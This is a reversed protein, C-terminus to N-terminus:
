NDADVREKTTHWILATALLGGALTALLDAPDFVGRSWYPGVLQLSSDPLLDALGTLMLASLNSHQSIELLMCLGTWALCHFSATARPASCFGIVLGLALTYLFSPASGFVGGFAVLESRPALMPLLLEPPHTRALCYVAIGLSLCFGALILLWAPCNSRNTFM